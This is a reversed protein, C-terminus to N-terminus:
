LFCGKGAAKEIHYLVNRVQSILEGGYLVVGYLYIMSINLYAHCFFL